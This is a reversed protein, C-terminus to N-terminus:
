SSSQPSQKKAAVRRMVARSANPILGVLRNALAMQTQPVYHVDNGHVAKWVVEAVDEATLKV